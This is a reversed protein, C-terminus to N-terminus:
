NAIFRGIIFMFDLIIGKHTSSSNLIFIKIVEEDQVVEIIRAIIFNMGQCYGIFPNRRAYANLVHRM